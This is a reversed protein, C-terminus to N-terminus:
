FISLRSCLSWLIFFGFLAQIAQKWTFSGWNFVHIGCWAEIDMMLLKFIKGWVIFDFIQYYDFEPKLKSRVTQWGALSFLFQSFHFKFASCTIKGLYNKVESCFATTLGHVFGNKIKQIREVIIIILLYIKIAKLNYISMWLWSICIINYHPLFVM